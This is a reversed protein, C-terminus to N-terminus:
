WLLVPTCIVVLLSPSQLSQFCHHRGGLLLKTSGEVAHVGSWFLLRVRVVECVEPKTNWKIRM